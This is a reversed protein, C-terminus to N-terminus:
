ATVGAETTIAHTTEWREVARLLNRALTKLHVAQGSLKIGDALHIELETPSAFGEHVNAVHPLERGSVQLEIEAQM